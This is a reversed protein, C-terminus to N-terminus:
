AYFPNGCAPPLVLIASGPQRPSFSKRLQRTAILLDFALTAGATHESAPQSLVNRVLFLGVVLAGATGWIWNRRLLNGLDLASWRGYGYLTAGSLVAYPILFWRRPLRLIGAFLFTIGFALVGAGLVWLLNAYWVKSM